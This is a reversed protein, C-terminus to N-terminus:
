YEDAYPDFDDGWGEHEQELEKQAKLKKMLKEGEIRELEDMYADSGFAPKKEPAEYLFHRCERWAYLIADGIDTHYSESIKPKGQQSYDWSVLLSDEQFRSDPFAKFRATRLDDNLLEIFELKRQKEAAHISIRHRQRIEEQIKKGLAGADMVMKVPNYIDRLSEIQEVLDSITQKETIVEQVLYVDKSDYSYGLVAIADADVYGIDVGIVYNLNEPVSDYINVNKNFKYVLSDKDQVWEGYYERRISPDKKSIGRRKCRDGIIDEVERNSKIKIWPNDHLTWAHHSWADNHAADHFYGTPVPGPTGILILSGDYDTLAPELIDDVLHEIYPRFSQCEDIYIKRLLMGRFKEIDSEDKAGSVYIVNKNPLTLSLDVKDEKANLKFKENIELLARWIIRKASRRNLTIYAVDGPMTLATHMLDVACAMSKGARRSCVATKFKAPDSVFTLQKDFCYDKLEFKEVNARRRAEDLISSKKQKAM